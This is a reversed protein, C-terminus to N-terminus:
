KPLHIETTGNKTEERTSYFTVVIAYLIVGLIAIGMIAPIIYIPLLVIYWPLEILKFIKLFIVGIVLLVSIQDVMSRSM